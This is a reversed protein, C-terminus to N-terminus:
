TEHARLHTYSVAEATQAAQATAAQAAVQEDGQKKIKVILDNIEDFPHKGLSRLITNVEPVTLEIKLAM